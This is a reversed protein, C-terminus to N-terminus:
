LSRVIGCPLSELEIVVGSLEGNKVTYVNGDRCACVIRYDILKAGTVAIHVPASPLQLKVQVSTGGPELVLVLGSETGVVLMSTATEDEIDKKLVEMCTVVDLATM